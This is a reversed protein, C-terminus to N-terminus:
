SVLHDEQIDRNDCRALWTSIRGDAAHGRGTEIRLLASQLRHSHTHPWVEYRVVDNTHIQNVIVEREVRPQRHGNRYFVYFLGRPYNTRIVDFLGRGTVTWTQGLSLVVAVLM